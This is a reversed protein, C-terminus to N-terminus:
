SIAARLQRIRLGWCVKIRGFRSPASGRRSAIPDSSIQCSFQHNNLMEFKIVIKETTQPCGQREGGRGHNKKRVWDWHVRGILVCIHLFFRKELM